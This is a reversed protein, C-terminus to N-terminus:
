VQGSQLKRPLYNEILELRVIRGEDDIVPVHHISRRLMMQLIQEGSEEKRVVWPKPNMVTEVSDDFSIGRLIGRRIDGDTVCGQLSLDNGVVLAIRLAQSDIIRIVERISMGSNVLVRKWDKMTRVVHAPVGVVMLQEGVDRVVVAGAGVLSESMIKRGQIISAGTGIHSGQEIKVEGSITVGPAIHVHAGIICDHDISSRTNVISNVGIITGPQIVAGAMIQVSEGLEVDNAIVSSPHTLTAFEYGQAKFSDYVSRRRLTTGISGIGNVLRVSDPPCNGFVWSDNGLVPIGDFLNGPQMSPSVAGRINWGRLRMMDLLVRAHGGTGLLIVPHNM